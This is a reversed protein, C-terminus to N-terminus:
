VNAVQVHDSLRESILRECAVFRDGDFADLVGRVKRRAPDGKRAWFLRRFINETPFLDRGLDVPHFYFVTDGRRLSQRVGAQLFWSPTLRALPGGAAPLKVGGLEYYPWPIEVISRDGTPELGQEEPQYPRSTVDLLESDTKNYLSNRAVSSDYTFGVEELVDIMWGGIYANPARYGTVQQDSVHELKRKATRLRDRFEEPTFRPAKTDPDIACAHHLGHCAIEHGRNAIESVLGSYNDVIDGVVFFTARLNVEDLLDLTRHTPETLYDYRGDWDEFFDEVTDYRSRPAGTVPPLHYWDEVDVTLAIRSDDSM